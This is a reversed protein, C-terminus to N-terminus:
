AEGSEKKMKCTGTFVSGTEIVLNGVLLFAEVVSTSRLTMLGDCKVEGKINGSIDCSKCFIKGMISGGEGLVLKGKLSLNGVLVGDLRLDGESIIDGKIQAGAIIRNYNHSTEAEVTKAMDPLNPRKFSVGKLVFGFPNVALAYINMVHARRGSPAEM